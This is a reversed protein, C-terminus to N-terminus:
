AAGDHAVAVRAFGADQAPNPYTDDIVLARLPRQAASGAGTAGAADPPHPKFRHRAVQHALREGRRSEQDARRQLLAETQRVLFALRRDLEEISSEAELIAGLSAELAADFTTSAAIAMPSHALAAGDGERIVEILHQCHAPLGNPIAIDFSCRGSGIGAAELDIRHANAIVRAILDGNDIVLLSVPVDPTDTEFRGAACM